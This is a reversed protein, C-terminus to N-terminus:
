GSLQPAALAGRLLVIEDIPDAYGIGKPESLTHCRLFRHPGRARSLEMEPFPGSPSGPVVAITVLIAGRASRDLMDCTDEFAALSRGTEDTVQLLLKGHLGRLAERFRLVTRELSAYGVPTSPDYQHFVTAGYLESFRRHRCLHGKGDPPRDEQEIPEYESAMLLGACDDIISDRVAETPITMWDFPGAWRRLGARRLMGATQPSCGLGICALPSPRAALGPAVVSEISASANAVTALRKQGEPSSQIINMFDAMVDVLSQTKLRRALEDSFNVLWTANVQRGLLAQHTARVLSELTVRLPVPDPAPM